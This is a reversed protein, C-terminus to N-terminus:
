AKKLPPIELLMRLYSRREEDNLQLESALAALEKQALDAKEPTSVIEVEVFKGLVGVDDFCTHIDFGNRQISATTRVKTVVAIPRFGLGSLFRVADASVDPGDALPLEIETRTKVAANQKPGKYTLVHHSSARRLRVVEDTVAFDRDPANFYHDVDRSPASYTPQYVALRQQVAAWDACRFKLEIELL